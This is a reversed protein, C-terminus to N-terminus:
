KHYPHGDLITKARYIQEVLIVRALMHPMTLPSLSLTINAKEKIGKAHGNAGGILFAIRGCTQAKELMSAFDSSTHKRGAEDLLIRYCGQSEAILLEGESEKLQEPPLNKKVEFEKIELKGVMRQLYEKIINSEPANIGIKGIALIIIRM